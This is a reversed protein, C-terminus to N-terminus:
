SGKKSLEDLIEVAFRRNANVKTEKEVVSKIFSDMDKEHKQVNFVDERKKSYLLFAGICIHSFIYFVGTVSLSYVFILLPENAKMIAFLVGVFFGQVIFFARFNDQKM